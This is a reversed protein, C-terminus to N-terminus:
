NKHIVSLISTKAAMVIFTLLRTYLVQIGLICHGTNKGLIEIIKLMLFLMGIENSGCIM